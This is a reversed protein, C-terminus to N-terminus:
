ASYSSHHSNTSTKFQSLVSVPKITVQPLIGRYGDMIPLKRQLLLTLTRLQVPLYYWYLNPCKLGGTDFPLYLLSLRVRPCKKNLIFTTILSTIRTFTGEPPALPVNQFLQLFKPLINMKLIHIRGILTIPLTLWRDISKFTGNYNWLRKSRYKWTYPSITAWTHLLRPFGLPQTVEQSEGETVLM